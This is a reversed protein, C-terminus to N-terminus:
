VHARGIEPAVPAAKIRAALEAWSGSARGEAGRAELEAIEQKLERKGLWPLDQMVLYRTSGVRAPLLTANQEGMRTIDRLETRLRPDPLAGAPVVREAAADAEFRMAAYEPNRSRAYDLLSEVNAGLAPDQARALVCWAGLVALAGCKLYKKM